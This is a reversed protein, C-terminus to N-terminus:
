ELRRKDVKAMEQQAAFNCDCSLDHKRTVGYRLTVAEDVVNRGVESRFADYVQAVYSERTPEAGAIRDLLPHLGLSLKVGWGGVWLSRALSIIM